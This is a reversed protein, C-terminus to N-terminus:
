IFTGPVRLRTRACSVAIVSGAANPGIGWLGLFVIGHHVRGESHDLEDAPADGSSWAPDPYLAAPRRKVSDPSVTDGTLFTINSQGGVTSSGGGFRRTARM